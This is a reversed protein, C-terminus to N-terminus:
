EEGINDAIAEDLNIAAEAIAQRLAPEFRGALAISINLAEVVKEITKESIEYMRDPEVM